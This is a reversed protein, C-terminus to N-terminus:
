RGPLDRRRQGSDVLPPFSRFILCVCPESPKVAGGGVFPDIYKTISGNLLDQPLRYTLDPLIKKKGGAWKVFQSPSNSIKRHKESYTGM